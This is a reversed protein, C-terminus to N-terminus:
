WPRNCLSWLCVSGATFILYINVYQLDVYDFVIYFLELQKNMVSICIKDCNLFGLEGRFCVRCFYMVGGGKGGVPQVLCPIPENCWDSVVDFDSCCM